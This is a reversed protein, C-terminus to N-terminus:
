PSDPSPQLRQKELWYRDLARDVERNVNGIIVLLKQTFGEEIDARVLGPMRTNAENEAQLDLENARSEAYEAAADASGYYEDVLQILAALLVDAASDDPLRTWTPDEPLHSAFGVCSLSVWLDDASLDPDGLRRLTVAAARNQVALHRPWDVPNIGTPGTALDSYGSAEFFQVRVQRWLADVAQTALHNLLPSDGPGLDAIVRRHFSGVVELDEAMPGSGIVRIVRTYGGHVIANERSRNKGEETIPGRSKRGNKRRAEKQAETIERPDPM